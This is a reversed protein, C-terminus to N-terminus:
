CTAKVNSGRGSPSSLMSELSRRRSMPARKSTYGVRFLAMPHEVEAYRALKTATQREDIVISLPHYSWGAACITVWSRLLRRGADFVALPELSEASILLADSSGSMLRVDRQAYIKAMTTGLRGRRFALRLAALDVKNLRLPRPTMGTDHWEDFRIWTQLDRVFRDNKWSLVSAEELMRSVTKTDLFRNGLAELDNRLLLPVPRGDYRLRNTMRTAAAVALPDIAEAEELPRISIVGVFFDPGERDFRPDLEAEFGHRHAALRLTEYYAGMGLYADRDDPDYPLYDNHDYHLEYQAKGTVPTLRWAQANHASPARLADTLIPEHEPHTLEIM